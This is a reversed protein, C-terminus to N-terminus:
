YLLVAVRYATFGQGANSMGCAGVAASHFKASQLRQELPEPLKSLDSSQWRIVFGPHSGGAIGDPMECTQRADQKPGSVELGHGVLKQTVAQEVQDRTLGPVIRAFDAVAYLYGAKEIVAFGIANMNPDLINARHPMSKMWQKQISDASRGM